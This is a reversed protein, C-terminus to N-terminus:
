VFNFFNPPGCFLRPGGTSFWQNLTVRERIMGQFGKSRADLIGRPEYAWLV